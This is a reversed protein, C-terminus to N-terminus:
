SAVLKSKSHRNEIITATVILFVLVFIYASLQIATPRSTYGVLTALAQGLISNESLLWSSDWVIQSFNSFYGASTLFGIGQAALGAVLIILLWSTVTLIYRAPMKLLGYYFLVGITIGGMLGITAGTFIATLSEGSITMGYVFLVIESGERLMALGIILTLSYFPLKGDRVDHGVQRLHTSMERAHAKMWLVTWGIVLAASFLILANFLEQGMGEATESIANAFVAVMASGFIGIAFGSFIWIMRNPLGRTAAMVIGLILAIELVERFIILASSFM